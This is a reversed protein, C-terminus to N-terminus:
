CDHGRPRHGVAKRCVFEVSEGIVQRVKEAGNGIVVITRQSGAARAADIAYRLMSKGNVAHLVKPLESKMRTGEGAALIITSLNM